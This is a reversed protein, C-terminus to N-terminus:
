ILYPQIIMLISFFQEVLRFWEISLMYQLLENPKFLGIIAQLYYVAALLDHSERIFVIVTKVISVLTGLM